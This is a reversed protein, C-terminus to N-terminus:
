AVFSAIEPESAKWDTLFDDFQNEIENIDDEYKAMKEIESIQNCLEFSGINRFNSKINHAIAKIAPKDKKQIADSIKELEVPMKTLVLHILQKIVVPENGVIKKIYELDICAPPNNKLETM